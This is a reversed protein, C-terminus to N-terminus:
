IFKVKTLSLNILSLVLSYIGMLKTFLELM